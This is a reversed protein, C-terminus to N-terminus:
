SALFAASSLAFSSLAARSSALFAASSLAAPFPAAGSFAPGSAPFAESSLAFSSLAAWSFAFFAESSLVASFLAAGSVAFFAESSLVASFLAAGSFALFAASSLSASFLAAGSFAPWSLPSAESSLVASFLAAGPFAVLLGFAVGDTKRAALEECDNPVRMAGRAHTRAMAAAMEASSISRGQLCVDATWRGSSRHATTARPRLLSTRLNTPCPSPREGLKCRDKMMRNDAHM